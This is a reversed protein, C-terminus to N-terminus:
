KAGLIQSSRSQAAESAQRAKLFEDGPKWTPLQPTNAVDLGIRMGFQAMQVMSGFDWDDRYEDSPRHYHENNYQEFATRGFDAPKGLYSRGASISFAPIGVRALSFHDSRYYHGQGPEADPKIELQMAEANRQVLPWLTTREAGTVEVDRTRGFPFFADYNLDVATQGTPVLPHEGYYDSGLLGAEEATVFLFLASRKPKQPLAAWVRAMELVMACGTANDVAGNYIRDGNIPVGMGLHDWHATFIVAQSALAPDSGEVRGVVNRTAIQRIRVPIRGTIRGLVIPHFDKSHAMALLQDLTKGTSAVLKEGANQTVWGAFKLGRQGPELKEQPHEGSNSGRVVEWGYGATPATHIIIAAVAGRRAAEEYKYTWRGYYTLSPGSFFNPDTSPPENTFFVLVKGKLNMGKYDDWGFEPASIGHGVFVAQASFQNQPTQASSTGVFDTVYHLQARRGKIVVSLTATNLTTVGVLPVAQFYTGNDGAPKVGATELQSAIYNTALREGRTGVGRGELEDGALYKVHARINRSSISLHEASTLNAFLLSAFLMVPLLRSMM